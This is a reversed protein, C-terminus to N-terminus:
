GVFLVTVETRTPGVSRFTITGEGGGTRRFPWIEDEPILDELVWPDSLNHEYWGKTDQESMPVSWVRTESGEGSWTVTSRTQSAGPPSPFDRLPAHTSWWVVASVLGVVALAVLSCCVIAVWRWRNPRPVVVPAWGGAYAAAPPYQSYGYPPYAPPPYPAPEPLAPPPPAAYWSSPSSPPPVQGSAPDAGSGTGGPPPFGGPPLGRPGQPSDAM